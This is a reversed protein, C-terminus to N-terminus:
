DKYTNGVRIMTTIIGKFIFPLFTDIGNIDASFRGLIRGLPTVDFFRMPIHMINKLLGNHIIAAANLAGLAYMVDDFVFVM